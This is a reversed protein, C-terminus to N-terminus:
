YSGSTSTRGFPFVLNLSVADIDVHHSLADNARYREIEARILFSPNIEYQLGLGAKYNTQRKSPNPELVIAAGSGSFTDSTKSNHAGIRAMVSFVDTVPLTGVLDINVGQVKIRGDLQGTPVTTSSFSFAGLNFYGAEVAFYRNFQYGGYVKYATDSKDHSINAILLSPVVSNTIRDEHVKAHSQGAALGGYYYSADQALATSTHLAGLAALSLLGICHSHNM